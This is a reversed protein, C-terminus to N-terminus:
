QLFPSSGTAILLKDFHMNTEDSLKISHNDPDISLAECNTKVVVNNEKYYEEPRLFINEEKAKSYLVYSIVPRAYAYYPEKSIIYIPSTKDISRIGNIAGLAAYSNGIIVYEM